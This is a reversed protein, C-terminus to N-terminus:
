LLKEQWSMLHQSVAMKERAVEGQRRVEASAHGAVAPPLSLLLERQDAGDDSRLAREYQTLLM